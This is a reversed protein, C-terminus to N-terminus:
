FDLRLINGVELDAQSLRRRQLSLSQPISRALVPIPALSLKPGRASVDDPKPIRLACPSLEFYSYGSARARTPLHV